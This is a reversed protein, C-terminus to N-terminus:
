PVELRFPADPIDNDIEVGDPCYRTATTRYVYEGSIFDALGPDAHPPVKVRVKIEVPEVSPRTYGGAVTPYRVPVTGDEAVIFARLDSPCQKNITASYTLELNDGPRVVKSIVEVGHWEVAAQASSHIRLAAEIFPLTTFFAILALLAPVIHPLIRAIM